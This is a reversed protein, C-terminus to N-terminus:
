QVEKNSKNLNCSPCLAQLNEIENINEEGNPYTLKKSYPYIHDIHAIEGDWSSEKSYKLKCGCQNCVWKQRKLVEYRQEKTIRRGECIFFNSRITNFDVKECEFRLYNAVNPYKIELSNLIEEPVLYFM